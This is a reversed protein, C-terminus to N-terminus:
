DTSDSVSSQDREAAQWTGNLCSELVARLDDTDARTLQLTAVVPPGDKRVNDQRWELKAPGDVLPRLVAALKQLPIPEPLAASVDLIFWAGVDGSTTGTPSFSGAM